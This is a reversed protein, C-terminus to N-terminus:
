ARLLEGRLRAEEDVCFMDINDMFHKLGKRGKGPGKRGRIPPLVAQLTYLGNQKQAKPLLKWAREWPMKLERRIYVNAPDVLRVLKPPM